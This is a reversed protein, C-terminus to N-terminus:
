RWLPNSKGISASSLSRGEGFSEMQSHRKFWTIQM